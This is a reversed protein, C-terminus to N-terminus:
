DALAGASRERQVLFAAALPELRHYFGGRRTEAGKGTGPFRGIASSTEPSSVRCRCYYLRFNCRRLPSLLYGGRDLNVAFNFKAAYKRALRLMEDAFDIGYLEFNKTFPLFDAGHGCGLNLLKGQRWEQALAELEPRFITWHRRNYWGPAIRNYVDQLNDTM